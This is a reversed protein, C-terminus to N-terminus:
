RGAACGNCDFDRLKEMGRGQRLGGLGPVAVGPGDVVDDDGRPPTFFAQLFHGDRDRRHRARLELGALDVGHVLQTRGHRVEFEVLRSGRGARTGHALNENAADALRVVRRDGVGADRQVNVADVDTTGGAVHEVEDVDVTDLDQAPRLPRQEASVGDAACDLDM